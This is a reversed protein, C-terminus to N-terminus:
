ASGEADPADQLRAALVYAEGLYILFLPQYAGFGMPEVAGVAHELLPIGEVVRGSLADASSLSGTNGM